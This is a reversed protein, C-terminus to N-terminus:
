TATGTSPWLYKEPNWAELYGLEPLTKALFKAM